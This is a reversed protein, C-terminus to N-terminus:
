GVFEGKVRSDQISFMLNKMKVVSLECEDTAGAIIAISVIVVM